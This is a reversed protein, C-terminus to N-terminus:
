LPIRGSVHAFSLIIESPISSLPGLSSISEDSELPEVIKCFFHFVALPKKVPFKSETIEFELCPLDMAGKMIRKDLLFVESIQGLTKEKEEENSLHEGNSTILVQQDPPIDTLQALEGKAKCLVMSSCFNISDIM